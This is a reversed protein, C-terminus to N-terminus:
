HAPVPIELKFIKGSSGSPLTDVIWVSRPYKYPVVRQKVFERLEERKAQGGPRLM